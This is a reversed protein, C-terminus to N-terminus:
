STLFYGVKKISGSPENGNECFGTVPGQGSGASNLEGWRERDGYTCRLIIRGGRRPRGLTRKGEPSGVLIRYVDKGKGM